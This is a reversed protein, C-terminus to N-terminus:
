SKLYLDFEGESNEILKFVEITSNFIAKDSALNKPNKNSKKLEELEKMPLLYIEDKIKVVTIRKEIFWKYNPLYHYYERMLDNSIFLADEHNLCYALIVEDAAVGAPSEYIKKEDLLAIYEDIEDIKYRLSADTIIVINEENIGRKIL